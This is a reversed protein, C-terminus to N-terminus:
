RREDTTFHSVSTRRSKTAGHSFSPHEAAEARRIIEDQERASLKVFLANFGAIRVILDPHREPHEQAERLVGADLCNIQLEQGGNAFFVDILARLKDTMEEGGWDTVPLTLNLNYGGPWHEAPRLKCVSNLVATPGERATGLVAGVSDALPEGGLRGDPTAELRAGELHHLSRVVMEMLLRPCNGEAELERLIRTRREQWALAWRDAREEDNGWKPAALIAARLGEHGEFNTRLAARLEALLVGEEALRELAALANVANSFGSSRVNLFPYKTHVMFDRGAEVCGAMLASTFPMPVERACRRHWDFRGRLGGRLRHSADAAMKEILAEAGPLEEGEASLVAERALEAEPLRLADWILKAPVGLENCGIVCYEAADEPSVGAGTLGPITEADGVLLPMSAGSALMRVAQIKVEGPLNRHWRLFVSPDPVRALACARLVSLTLSNGADNGEADVGGVTIPQTKSHSGFASNAALMLM